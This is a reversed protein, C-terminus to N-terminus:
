LLFGVTKEGEVFIVKTVKRTDVLPKRKEYVVVVPGLYAKWKCAIFVMMPQLRVADILYSCSLYLNDLKMIYLGFDEGWMEKPLYSQAPQSSTSLCCFGGAGLM